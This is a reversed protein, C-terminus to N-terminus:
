IEETDDPLMEPTTLIPTKLGRTHNYELMKTYSDLGMHAFNWTLLYDVEALVASALHYADLKSRDPIQLLDKYLLALKEIDPHQPLINIGNLLALRKEAALLDGKKCEEIVYQSIFLNYKHRENNWFDRSIIQHALTIIDHADRATIM